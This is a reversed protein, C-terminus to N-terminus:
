CFVNEIIGPIGKMLIGQYTENCVNIVENGEGLYMYDSTCM